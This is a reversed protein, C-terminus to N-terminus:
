PILRLLRAKSGLFSRSSEVTFFDSVCKELLEPHFKVGLYENVGDTVLWFEKGPSPLRRVVELVQREDSLSMSELDWNQFTFEKPLPVLQNIGTYYYSLPLVQQSRFVLVPQNPKEATMIYTALRKWDGPKVMPTYQFILSAINFTLIVPTLLILWRKGLLGHVLELFAFTVPVFLFATHRPQTLIPGLAAVLALYAGTAFVLATFVAIFTPSVLKRYRFIALAFCPLCLLVLLSARSENLFPPLDSTGALTYYALRQCVARVATGLTLSPAATDSHGSLHGPVLLFLPIAGLAVALMDFFYARARAWSRIAILSLFYAVLLFGLYYQTYLAFLSLFIYCWRSSRSAREELYASLFFSFLLTSLLLALAYGRIEVAAWILYPNFALLASTWFPHLSPFLRHSVRMLFFLNLLVCLISFLRAFFLSSDVQRWLSLFLFYLPPQLEFRIANTVAQIPGQGTTQLSFAEDVWLNISAGLVLTLIASLLWPLFSLLQKGPRPSPMTMSTLIGPSSLPAGAAQPKRRSHEGQLRNFYDM